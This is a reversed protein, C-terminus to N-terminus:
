MVDGDSGHSNNGTRRALTDVIATMASSVNALAAIAGTAFGPPPPPVVPIGPVVQRPPPPPPPPVDWRRPRGDPNNAAYGVASQRAREYVSDAHEQAIGAAVERARAQAALAAQNRAMADLDQNDQNDDM